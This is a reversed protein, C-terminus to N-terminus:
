SRGVVEASATSGPQRINAAMRTWADPDDHATNIRACDMGRAVLGAVLEYDDAAATPMTVMIRTPRGEPLSVLLDVANQHLLALGDSGPDAMAPVAQGHSQLRDTVWRVQDVTGLVHAECRGLSSLGLRALAAQLPRADQSRLALYHGLNTASSRHTPHVGDPAQAAAREAALLRGHLATLGAAVDDLVAGAGQDVADKPRSAPM